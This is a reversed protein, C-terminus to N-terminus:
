GYGPVGESERWWWDMHALTCHLGFVRDPRGNSLTWTSFIATLLFNMLALSARSATTARAYAGALFTTLLPFTSTKCNSLSCPILDLLNPLFNYTTTIVELRQLHHLLSEVMSFPLCTHLLQLQASLLVESLAVINGFLSKVAMSM